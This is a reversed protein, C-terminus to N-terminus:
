IQSYATPVLFHPTNKSVTNAWKPDDRMVAWEPDGVFKMQLKQRYMQDRTQDKIRAKFQGLSMGTAQKLALELQKEGGQQQVVRGYWEDAKADADKDSVKLTTDQKARAVLIKEDILRALVEKRQESVAQAEFAPRQSAMAQRLEEVDSFLIPTGDVVAAVGEVPTRAAHGMAVLVSLVLGTINISQLRPIRM